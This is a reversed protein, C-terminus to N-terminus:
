RRKTRKTSKNLLKVARLTDKFIAEITKEYDEPSIWFSYDVLNKKSDESLIDFLNKHLTLDECVYIHLTPLKSMIAQM